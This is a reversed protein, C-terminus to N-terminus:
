PDIWSPGSGDPALTWIWLTDYISYAANNSRPGQPPLLGYDGATGRYNVEIRRGDPMQVWYQHGVMMRAVEVETLEGPRQREESFFAFVALGALICGLGWWGLAPKPRAKLEPKPELKPGWDVRGGGGFFDDPGRM